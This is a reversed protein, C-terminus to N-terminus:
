GARVKNKWDPRIAAFVIERSTHPIDMFMEGPTIDTTSINDGFKWVKGRILGLKSM